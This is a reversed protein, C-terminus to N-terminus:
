SLPGAGAPPAITVREFELAANVTPDDTVRAAPAVDTLKGTVVPDIVPLELAVM